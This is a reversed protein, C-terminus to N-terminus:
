PRTDQPSVAIEHFMMTSASPEESPPRSFLIKEAERITANISANNPARSAADRLFLLASRPDERALLVRGLALATHIDDPNARYQKMLALQRSALDNERQFARQVREAEKRRGLAAYAQALVYLARPYHKRRRAANEAFPLAERARGRELLLRALEYSAEAYNPQIVLARRLNQEALHAFNPGAPQRAYVYGLWRYPEPRSPEKEIVSKLVQEAHRFEGSLALVRGYSLLIRPQNPLRKAAQALHELAPKSLSKREYLLGAILHADACNPDQKLEREANRLASVEMGAAFEARALRCQAHEAQPDHRLFEGWYHVATPYHRLTEAIEALGRYPPAFHPDLRIAEQYVEWADSFLRAAHLEKARGYADAAPSLHSRRLGFFFLAAVGLVMWISLILRGWTPRPLSM